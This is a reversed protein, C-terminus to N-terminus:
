LRSRGYRHLLKQAQPPGSSGFDYSHPKINEMEHLLPTFIEWSLQLEDDRVFSASNGQLADFILRGYADDDSGQKRRDLVMSGQEVGSMFDNGKVNMSLSYSNEPQIKMTFQNLDASNITRKHVADQQTEHFVVKVEAMKEELAKGAILVFPVNRWRENDVFLRVAAFTPTCSNKPVKEDDKYGDYQGVVCDKHSPIRMCSLLKCKANRLGEVSSDQTPEMAVLTMVQLLHNQIIDRIIGYQDFYGGRGDTGIKEKMSIIVHSIHKKNWLAEVWPNNFRFSPISRIMNKGLYHDIRFMQSEELLESLSQSLVKYSDTDRGFPKEFLVRLSKSHVSSFSTTIARTATHFLNPPIALYFLYNAEGDAAMLSISDKILSFATTDDYGKGQQYFCSNLFCQLQEEDHQPLFERIQRRLGDHSLNSRSFGWVKTTTPILKRQYLSFLSPYTKRKALDGSAGVIIIALPDNSQTFDATGKKM